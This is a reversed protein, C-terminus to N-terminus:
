ADQASLQYQSCLLDLADNLLEIDNLGPIRATQDVPTAYHMAFLPIPHSPPNVVSHYWLPGSHLLIRSDIGYLTEVCDDCSSANTLHPRARVHYPQLKPGKMMITMSNM